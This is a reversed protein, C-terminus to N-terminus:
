RPTKGTPIPITFRLTAAIFGARNERFRPADLLLNRDTFIKLKTPNDVGYKDIM